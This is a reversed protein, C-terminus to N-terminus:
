VPVQELIDVVPGALDTGDTDAFTAVPEAIGFEDSILQAPNKMLQGLCVIELSQCLCIKCNLGGVEEGLNIGYVRETLTVAAGM